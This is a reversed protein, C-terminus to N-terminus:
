GYKRFAQLILMVAFWILNYIVINTTTFMNVSTFLMFILGLLAALFVGAFVTSSTLTIDRVLKKSAVLARAFSTFTGNCSVGGNGRSTYKSCEDFKEHMDFPLVRLMTPSMEFVDALKNVTVLSDKTRVIVAIGRRDLEQMSHKIESNPIIEIFFMAVTEGSVALYVVDGNESCYKREKRIDPVKIGHHKMQDRNGLMIRNNGIWGSIGMNVEYICNDVEYLLESRGAVMDYFMYTLISGSKIALSAATIIAEDIAYVNLSNAPQCRKINRFAISGAPFLSSADVLVSNVESFKVAANYGLVVSSTKSLSKSASLMPNNVIFMISLPSLVSLMGCAVTLAWYINNEMEAVGNPILYAAAGMLVAFILILPTLLKCIKDALDNCYTNKLFDTLFETKRMTCLVPLDHLVGKTFSHTLMEDQVIDAYYKANDGSVFRFNRKARVIMCLKGITNFLLAMLGAAVFIYAKGRQVYDSNSLHPIITILAAVIPIACISDCDAKGTFLKSLGGTIVSTCLAAGVVGLILNMYLFGAPDYRKDLFQLDFGFLKFTLVNEMDNLISVLFLFATIILLLVFRLKLGRHSECIDNWIQGSTDFSDFEDKEEESDYYVPDVEDDEIDELVFDRIKRKRKSTLENMKQEAIIPDEGLMLTNTDKLIQNKYDINLANTPLGTKKVDSSIPIVQTRQAEIDSSRKNKMAKNLSELLATNSRKSKFEGLPLERQRQSSKEISPTYPKVGVEATVYGKNIEDASKAAIEKLDDGAIGLTDGLFLSSVAKSQEDARKLIDYPNISDIQEEPHELELDKELIAVDRENLGTENKIIPLDVRTQELNPFVFDEGSGRIDGSVSEIIKKPAPKKEAEPAELVPKPLVKAKEYMIDSKKPKETKVPKPQKISVPNEPEKDAKELIRTVSLGSNDEHTRNNNDTGHMNIIQTVGLDYSKKNNKADPDFKELLEKEEIKKRLGKKDEIDLSEWANQEEPKKEPETNVGSKKKAVEALIDDLSFNDSM